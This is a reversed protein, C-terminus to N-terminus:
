THAAESLRHYTVKVEWDQDLPPVTGGCLIDNEYKLQALERSIAIHREDYAVM